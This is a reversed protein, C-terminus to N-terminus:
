FYRAHLIKALEGMPVDRLAEAEDDDLEALQMNLIVLDALSFLAGGLVVALVEKVGGGILVMGVSIVVAPVVLSRWIAILSGMSLRLDAYLEDLFSTDM